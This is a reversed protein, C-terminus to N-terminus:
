FKPRFILQTSSLDMVFLASVEKYLCSNLGLNLGPRFRLTELSGVFFGTFCNRIIPVLRKEPDVRALPVM